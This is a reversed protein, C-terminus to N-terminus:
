IAPRCAGEKWEARGTVIKPLSRRRSPGALHEAVEDSIPSTASAFVKSLKMGPDLTGASASASAAYKRRNVVAQQDNAVRRASGDRVLPLGLAAGPEVIILLYHLHTM